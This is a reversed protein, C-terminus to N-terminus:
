EFKGKAIGRFYIHANLYMDYHRELEDRSVESSDLGNQEDLVLKDSDIMAAIQSETPKKESKQVIDLYIAARVAKVGTKRMRSDLDQKKLEGSIIIQAHLFRAALREAEELTVGEEYSRRIQAELEKYTQKLDTM